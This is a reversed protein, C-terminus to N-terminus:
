KEVSYLKKLYRKASALTKGVGKKVWKAGRKVFVTKGIRKYPM